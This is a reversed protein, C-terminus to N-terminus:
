KITCGRTKVIRAWEFAEGAKIANKIATKDPETKVRQFEIPVADPDTLELSEGKTAKVTAFDFEIKEGDNLGAVIYKKIREAKEEVAQRLDRLRREHIAIAAERAELNLVWAALNEIKEKREGEVADLMAELDDPMEGGASEIQAELAAIAGKLAFLNM